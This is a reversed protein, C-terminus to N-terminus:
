ESLDRKVQQIMEESRSSGRIIIRDVVSMLIQPNTKSDPEGEKYTSGTVKKNYSELYDVTARLNKLDNASDLKDGFLKTLNHTVERWPNMNMRDKVEDVNIKSLEYLSNEIIIRRMKEKGVRFSVASLVLELNDVDMFLFEDLAKEMKKRVTVAGAHFEVLKIGREIEAVERIERRIFYSLFPNDSTRFLYSLGEEGMYRTYLSIQAFFDEPRFQIIAVTFSDTTIIKLTDKSGILRILFTLFNQKDANTWGKMSKIVESKWDDPVNESWKNGWQKKVFRIFPDNGFESKCPGSSAQCSCFM